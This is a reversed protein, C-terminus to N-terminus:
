RFTGLALERRWLEASVRDVATALHRRYTSFPLDLLEAAEEQTRAPEFWTHRLADYQRRTRPSAALQEAADRLLTRITEVPEPAARETVLRSHRLPSAALADARHYDRLARRVAQRFDAEPLVMLAPAATPTEQIPSLSMERQTLIRDLAEIPEQRWDHAYMHWTRGDVTVDADPYPNIHVYSFLSRWYDPDVVPTVMWALRPRTYILGSGVMAFSLRLTPTRYADRGMCFRACLAEDGPRLPGHRDMMDFIATLVPDFAVDERTYGHIDLGLLFGSPEGHIDRLVRLGEPQLQLWRDAIEASRAGEHRQVTDIVFGHDDATGAEIYEHGHQEMPAFTQWTPNNRHLFMLSYLEQFQERGRTARIREVAYDHVM